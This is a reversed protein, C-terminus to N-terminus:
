AQQFSLLIADQRAHMRARDGPDHDDYGLLHLLGHVLLVDIEGAADHGYEAAQAAATEYSIVVDGLYVPWGPPTVFQVASAQATDSDTGETTDAEDLPATAGDPVDDGEYGEAVYDTAAVTDQEVGEPEEEDPAPPTPAVPATGAGFSLVDTPYDHDLYQKNLAQIEQDDTITIGLELAEQHGEAILTFVALTHLRDADLGASYAPALQVSIWYQDDSVLSRLPPEAAADSLNPQTPM